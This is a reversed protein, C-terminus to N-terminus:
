LLPIEESLRHLVESVEPKSFWALSCDTGTGTGAGTGTGTGTGTGLKLPDSSGTRLSLM